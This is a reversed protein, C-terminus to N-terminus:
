LEAFDRDLMMKQGRIWYIKSSIVKVPIELDEKM